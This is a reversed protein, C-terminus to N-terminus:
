THVNNYYNNNNQYAFIYLSHYISCKLLNLKYNINTLKPSDCLTIM